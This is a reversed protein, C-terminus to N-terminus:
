EFSKFFEQWMPIVKSPSFRVVSEKANNGHACALGPEKIYDLIAQELGETDRLKVIRGNFGDTIIESPGTPCDYAICPLGENMAEILVMPLGEAISASVFFSSSRYFDSINNVNGHFFVVKELSLQNVLKELNSREKGDGCIHLTWDPYLKTVNNWIQILTNFGKRNDYMSGVTIVRKSEYNPIYNSPKLKVVNPIVVTNAKYNGDLQDKKTLLILNDYSKDFANFIRNYAILYKLRTLLPMLKAREYVAQKAFHFERCIPINLKHCIHPLYFDDTGRELVIVVNPKIESILRQYRTYLAAKIKRNNLYRYIINTKQSIENCIGLFHIKINPAFGYAPIHESDNTAVHIEYQLQDAFIGAKTSLVREVGGQSRLSGISYLVVFNKM